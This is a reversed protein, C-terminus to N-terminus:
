STQYVPNANQAETKNGTRKKEQEKKRM